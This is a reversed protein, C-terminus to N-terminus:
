YFLFFQFGSLHLHEKYPRILNLEEPELEKTLMKLQNVNESDILKYISNINLNGISPSRKM